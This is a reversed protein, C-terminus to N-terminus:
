CMEEKPNFKKTMIVELQQMTYEISKSNDIVFDSEPNFLDYIGAESEHVTNIWDYVTFDQKEVLPPPVLFIVTGGLMKIAAYENEFRVDDIVITDVREMYPLAGNQLEIDHIRKLAHEIWIDKHFRRGFDSGLGKMLDRPSAGSTLSAIEAEKLTRDSFVTMDRIHNSFISKLFSRVPDSFSIVQVNKPKANKIMESVMSKGSGANGHLGVIKM